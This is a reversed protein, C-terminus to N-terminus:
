RWLRWPWFVIYQWAIASIASSARQKTMGAVLVGIALYAIVAAIAIDDVLAINM